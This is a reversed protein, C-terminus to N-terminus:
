PCMEDSDGDESDNEDDIEPVTIIENIMVTIDERNLKKAHLLFLEELAKVLSPYDKLQKRIIRRLAIRQLWTPWKSLRLIKDVTENIDDLRSSRFIDVIAEYVPTVLERPVVGSKFKSELDIFVKASFRELQM